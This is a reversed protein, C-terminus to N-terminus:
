STIDKGQIMDHFLMGNMIINIEFALKRKMLHCFFFLTNNINKYLIHQQIFIALFIICKPNINLNQLYRTIRNILYLLSDILLSSVPWSFQAFVPLM